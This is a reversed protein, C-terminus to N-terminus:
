APAGGGAGAAAGAAVIPLSLLFAFMGLYIMVILAILAMIWLVIPVIVVAAAKGDTLDHLKRFSIFRLYLGYLGIAMMLMNLPFALIVFLYGLCPILMLWGLPIYVVLLPLEFSFAALGSAVSANFHTKYDGTGGLLKAIAYEVLCYLLTFVPSLILFLFAIGVVAAMIILPIGFLLVSYLVFFAGGIILMPLMALIRFILNTIIMVYLDKIRQMITDPKSVKPLPDLGFKKWQEMRKYPMFGLIKDVYELYKDKWDEFDGM